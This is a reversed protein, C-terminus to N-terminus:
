NEERLVERVSGIGYAMVAALAVTGWNPEDGRIARMLVTCCGFFTAGAWIFLYANARTVVCEGAVAGLLGAGM